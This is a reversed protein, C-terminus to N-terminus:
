DSICLGPYNGAHIIMEKVVLDALTVNSLILMGSNLLWKSTSKESALHRLGEERRIEMSDALGFTCSQPSRRWLKCSHRLYTNNPTSSLVCEFETMVDSM